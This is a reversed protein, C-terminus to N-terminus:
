FQRGSPDVDSTSGLPVDRAQSNAASLLHGEVEGKAKDMVKVALDDVISARFRGRLNELRQETFVRITANINDICDELRLTPKSDILKSIPSVNRSSLIIKCAGAQM